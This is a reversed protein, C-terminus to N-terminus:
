PARMDKMIFTDELGELNHFLGLRMRVSTGVTTLLGAIHRGHITEGLELRLDMVVGFAGLRGVFRGSTRMDQHSTGLLSLPAPFLALHAKLDALSM